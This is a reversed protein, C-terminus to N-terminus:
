TVLANVVSGVEIRQLATATPQM